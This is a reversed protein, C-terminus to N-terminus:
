HTAEGRRASLTEPLTGPLSAMEPAPRDSTGLRTDSGAALEPYPWSPKSRARGLAEVCSPDFQSGSRELLYAFCVEPDIASRYPRSASTAEFVDAVAVLLGLPDIEAAKLGRPYGSGDLREHHQWVIPM